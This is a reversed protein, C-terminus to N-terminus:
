RLDKGTLYKKMYRSLLAFVLLCLATNPVMYATQYLASYLWPSTMTLGFFVDPMYEGWVVAGTIFLVTWRLACGTLTGWICGNKRGRFLGAFGLVLYSFVYDGLISQWGIVFGGDLLFQLCGLLFGVGLGPGLGWRVAYLLVPVMCLTVSGGWPMRWFKLYGLVQALALLIAGECLCLITRHKQFFKM